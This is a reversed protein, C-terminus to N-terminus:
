FHMCAHYSALRDMGLIVYFDHKDLLVMKALLERGGFSVLSSFSIIGYLIVSQPLLWYSLILYNWARTVVKLLASPVFYHM